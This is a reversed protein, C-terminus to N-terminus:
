ESKEGEDSMIKNAKNIVSSQIQIIKAHEVQMTMHWYAGAMHLIQSCQYPNYGKDFLIQNIQTSEEFFIRYAVESEKEM